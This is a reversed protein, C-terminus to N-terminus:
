PTAPPPGPTTVGRRPHHAREHPARARLVASRRRLPRGDAQARLNASGGSACARRKGAALEAVVVVIRDPERERVDGLAAAHALLTRERERRELEHAILDGVRKPW